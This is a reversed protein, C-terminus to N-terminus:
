ANSTRWDAQRNWEEDRTSLALSEPLPALDVGYTSRRLASYDAAKDVIIRDIGGSMPHMRQAAVYRSFIAGRRDEETLGASRLLFGYYNVYCYYLQDELEQHSLNPHTWTPCITDFRDLNRETILGAARYEDYQDTGPIPTFMYFSVAKPRLAKLVDLHERISKRDDEPFGIINSFHPRIGAENCSRVIKEYQAPHNHYKGVSKLVKRNFSEVGVFMEFCGARGLLEVLDPDRAIQTDCQCFFKLDMDEDVIARLLDRVQPFKNFNDSVFMIMEVGGQKARRLSELTSDIKPFRVQRGSIKIVSCYSCKYPCGRVPYLGLMPMWYRSLDTPGPPDIVRDPLQHAWRRDAGYVPRLEGDIADQLIQSWVLEAEAVAISVGRGQVASTDCTM